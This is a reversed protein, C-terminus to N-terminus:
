EFLLCVPSPIEYESVIEQIEGNAVDRSYVAIRNSDQYGVLLYRGDPSLAFNRPAKGSLQDFGLPEIAGDGDIAYSAIGDWGRSSAYLFRGDPSLHIDAAISDGSFDKPLVSLTHREILGGDEAVSYHIVNNGLECVVYLNNGAADFAMHRPGEGAKIEVFPQKENLSLSGSLQIDYVMLKDIGLDAVVLKKGDPTPNVSHAHPSQQRKPNIGKGEHQVISVADGLSGDPLIPFSAVNGSLYNAAFLFRGDVSVAAHCTAGGPFEVANKFSLSGDPHVFYSGVKGADRRENAAYLINGRKALFSPNDSEITAIEELSGESEDFSLTYIGKSGTGDTYTGIYLKRKM